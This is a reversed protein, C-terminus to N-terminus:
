VASKIINKYYEGPTTNMLKKFATNFTTKSNFGAQYALALITLNENKSSEAIAKFETIRYINIFDFFNKGYHENIIRSLLNRNIGTLDSLENLTIKPQLYPKNEVMIADILKAYETYDEKPQNQIVPTEINENM